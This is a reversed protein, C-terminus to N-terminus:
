PVERIMQVLQDRAVGHQKAQDVLQEVAKRLSPSPGRGLVTAGQGRRLRILGEQQLASYARLVTHMNVGLAEAMARAPPLQEGTGIEDRDIASRVAEAIQDYLPGSAERELEFWM